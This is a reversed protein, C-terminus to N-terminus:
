PYLKGRTLNKLQWNSMVRTNKTSAILTAAYIPTDMAPHGLLRTIAIDVAIKSRNSCAVFIDIMITYMYRGKLPGDDPLEKFCLKFITSSAEPDMAKANKTSPHKDNSEFDDEADDFGQSM